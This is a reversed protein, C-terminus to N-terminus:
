MRRVRSGSVRGVLRRSVLDLAPSMTTGVLDRWLRGEDVRFQIPADPVYEGDAIARVADEDLDTAVAVRISAPTFAEDLTFLTSHSSSAAV